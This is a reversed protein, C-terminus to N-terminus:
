PPNFEVSVTTGPSVRAGPQPKQKVAVGSGTPQLHLHLKELVAGAKKVTLGTLNPVIVQGGPQLGGVRLSVTHGRSVQQGAAPEQGTVVGEEGPSWVRLGRESLLWRADAVPFGTLDPVPVRNDVPGAAAQEAQADQHQQGPDEPVGLYRLTDRVVASFAPAAVEGGHYQGGRPEGVVVLVAVRPDGAPAFGAFSAVYKDPAYGGPVPVQATGTKGAVRYGEVLAMKGTGEVVVKELMGALQRATGASIVRRVVGPTIERIVNGQADEVARVVHPQVLDGGNAVASVATILQIPTVAISQGISMVAIDLDTAKQPSVVVGTEEGPLDIGTASGFGFGRVYKYLREKGLRLGAQAFVPNCSNEVAQAFTEPGHGKEDWCSIRRGKVIVYGSDFFQEAPQVVGEELAAAASIIKFTSGPEYTYHTAPNKEWLGSPFEKWRSPDFTPRSGMALIEGSRPDMVLIVAWSPQYSSVIRDLEREVYYQITQDITLILNNGPISPQVLVGSQPIQRDHSDVELVMKGPTGRLEADFRKEVGNLGQNEDGVFGLLHAALTGQKYFRTSSQVMGIGPLNRAQLERAKESSVGYKLWVFPKGSSLKQQVEEGKMGLVPAVAAATRPVDKIQDPHAYVSYVPISTVLPNHNRDYIIGRNPNLVIDRTRIATAEQRLQGGWVVQLWFLRLILLAFALIICFLIAGLRRSIKLGRAQM